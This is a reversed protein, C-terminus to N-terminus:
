VIQLMEQKSLSFFEFIDRIWQFTRGNLLRCLALSYTSPILFYNIKTYLSNCYLFLGGGVGWCYFTRKHIYKGVIFLFVNRPFGVMIDRSDVIFSAKFLLIFKKQLSKRNFLSKKTNIFICLFICKKERKVNNGCVM